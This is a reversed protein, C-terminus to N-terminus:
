SREKVEATQSCMPRLWHRPRGESTEIWSHQEDRWNTFEAAVKPYVYRGIQSNRAMEVPSGVAELKEALSKYTM